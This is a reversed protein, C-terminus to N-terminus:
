TVGIHEVTYYLVAIYPENKNVSYKSTQKIKSHTCIHGRTHTLRCRTETTGPPRLAACKMMRGWVRFSFAWLGRRKKQKKLSEAFM